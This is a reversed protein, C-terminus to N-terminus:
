VYIIKIEGFVNNGVIWLDYPETHVHTGEEVIAGAFSSSDLYVSFDRPVYIKMAGFCNNLTLKAPKTVVRSQDLFIKVEGFANAVTGGRFDNTQVYKTMTRFANDYRITRDSGEDKAQSVDPSNWSSESGSTRSYSGSTGCGYSQSYGESADGGYMGTYGGSENSDYMGTYGGSANGGYSKSYGDAGGSGYSDSQGHFSRDKQHKWHSKDFDHDQEWDNWKKQKSADPFILHFGISLLVVIVLMQWVSVVPISFYAGFTLWGIGLALFSGGFSGKVISNVFLCTCVMGVCIKWISLHLDIIHFQMLVILIAAFIFLLGWLPGLSKKKM